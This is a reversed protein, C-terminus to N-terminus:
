SPTGAKAAIAAAAQQLLQVKTAKRQEEAAIAQKYGAIAKDQGSTDALRELGETILKLAEAEANVVLQSQPQRSLYGRLIAGLIAAIAIVLLLILVFQPTIPPM